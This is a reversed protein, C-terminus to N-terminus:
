ERDYIKQFLTVVRRYEEAIKDLTAEVAAQQNQRIFLELLDMIGCFKQMSFVDLVSHFRYCAMLAKEKDTGAAYQMLAAYEQNALFQGVMQRIQEESRNFWEERKFCAGAEKLREKTSLLM